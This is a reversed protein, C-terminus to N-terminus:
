QLLNKESFKAGNGINEINDDISNKSDKLDRIQTKINEENLKDKNDEGLKDYKEQYKKDLDEDPQVKSKKQNEANNISIDEYDGNM